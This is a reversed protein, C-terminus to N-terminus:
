AGSGPHCRNHLATRSTRRRAWPGGKQYDGPDQDHDPPGPDLRRIESGHDPGDDEDDGARDPQRGPRRVACAPECCPTSPGGLHQQGGAAQLRVRARSAPGRGCDSCDRERGAYESHEDDVDKVAPVVVALGALVQHRGSDDTDACEEGHRHDCCGEGDM